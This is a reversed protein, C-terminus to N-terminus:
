LFIYGRIFILLFLAGSIIFTKGITKGRSAEDFQFYSMSEKDFLCYCSYSYIILTFILSTPSPSNITFKYKILMVIFTMISFYSLFLLFIQTGWWAWRKGFRIGIGAIIILISKIIDLILSYVQNSLDGNSSKNPTLTLIVVLFLIGIVILITSVRKVKSPRDSM